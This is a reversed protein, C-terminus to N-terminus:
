KKEPMQPSCEAITTLKGVVWKKDIHQM